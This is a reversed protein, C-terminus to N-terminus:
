PKRYGSRRMSLAQYFVAGFIDTVLPTPKDAFGIFGQGTVSPSYPKIASGGILLVASLILSACFLKVGM